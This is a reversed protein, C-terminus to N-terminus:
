RYHSTFMCFSSSSQEKSPTNPYRLSRKRNIVNASETRVQPQNCGLTLESSYQWSTPIHHTNNPSNPQLCYANRQHFFTSSFSLTSFWTVSIPGGKKGDIPQYLTCIFKLVEEKRNVLILICMNYCNKLYM